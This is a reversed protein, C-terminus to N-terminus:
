LKFKEHCRTVLERLKHLYTECVIIADENPRDKFLYNRTTLRKINDIPKGNMSVPTKNDIVLNARDDIKGLPIDVTKSGSITLGKPFSTTYKSVTDFPRVHTTDVRLNNFLRFDLDLRMEEQRASYWEKFGSASDFETRIIFTVNRAQIVFADLNAMFVIYDDSNQKAQELMIQAYMLKQQTDTM